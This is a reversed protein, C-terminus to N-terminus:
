FKVLDELIKRIQKAWLEEFYVCRLSTLNLCFGYFKERAIEYNRNEILQLYSEIEEILNKVKETSHPIKHAKYYNLHERIEQVLSALQPFSKEFFSNDKKLNGIRRKVDIKFLEVEIDYAKIIRKIIERLSPIKENEEKMGRETISREFITSLTRFDERGNVACTISHSASSTHLLKELAEEPNSTKLREENFKQREEQLSCVLKHLIEDINEHCIRKLTETPMTEITLPDGLQMIEERSLKLFEGPYKESNPRKFNLSEFRM